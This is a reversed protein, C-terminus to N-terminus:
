DHKSKKLYKALYEGTYSDKCKMIDKPTGQAVVTGGESGGEPGLDRIHDAIKILYLNHEIM